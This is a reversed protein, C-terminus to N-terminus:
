IIDLNLIKLLKICRGMGPYSSATNYNESNNLTELSDLSVSLAPDPQLQASSRPAPLVLDQLLLLDPSPGLSLLLNIDDTLGRPLRFWYPRLQTLSLGDLSSAAITRLLESLVIELSSTFTGPLFFALLSIMIWGSPARLTLCTCCVYMTM